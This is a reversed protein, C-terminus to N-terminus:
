EPATTLLLDRVFAVMEEACWDETAELNRVVEGNDLGSNILDCVRSRIRQRKEDSM